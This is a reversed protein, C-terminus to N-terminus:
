GAPPAGPLTKTKVVSALLAQFNKGLAETLNMELIQKLIALLDEPDWELIEADKLKPEDVSERILRVIRADSKTLAAIVRTILQFETGEGGPLGEVVEEVITGIDRMLHFLKASSWKKLRIVTAKDHDEHEIQYDAHRTLKM